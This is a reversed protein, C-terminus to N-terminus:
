YRAAVPYLQMGAMSALDTVTIGADENLAQVVRGGGLYIAVHYFGPASGWVLLDGARAQALPVHVPAQAFQQSATRPLYRGAAAFANQVLGSCDFGHSGTGGYQYFYPSGVKGLAVSIATQNSGGPAPAPAPAPTPAPPAAPQPAPAPSAGAPPAPAPLVPAPLVPAPRVPVAPVAPAPQAPAPAAPAPAASSTNGADTRPAAAQAPVQRQSPDQGAAATVAALQDEQRQRDLADIRASELAVTTNKLIALQDVLLTRQAEAESVARRQADNAQEADRKRSEATRAAEDAARTADAAAATLSEAAVAATEASQFARTRGATVAELTAAQQLANGSGSALSSLVPNLGGHRYLDGALQGIQQRTKQHDAGAAAAKAAAVETADRRSQLEVLAEGYANNAQLSASLSADQAASADALLQDITTVQAATTSESSKAAAIQDPSPLDPAAPVREAPVQLAPPLPAANAPVALAGLLLVAAGLVAAKRGSGTWTM